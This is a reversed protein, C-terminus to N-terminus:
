SPTPAAPVKAMLLFGLVCQLSSLTLHVAYSIFIVAAGTTRVDSLPFFLALASFGAVQFAGFLGPGAPVVSGLGLIGIMCAAQTPSAPLGSGRMLLWQGAIMCVWYVGTAVLFSILNRRSPLFKLGDAIRILTQAAWNGARPSVLGIVRRTVRSAPERAAYFAAMALFLGAFALTATYVAAPVTALPLPIDGLARPLPSVKSAVSMSVFTFLTLVVGDIVREAFLTGAAQMFTVQRDRALLYPRVVEGMRLPALFIASFGVLGIGLVRLPKLQPAIPRLLYVWRYTRLFISAMQLLVFGAIAWMPVRRLDDQAPLLPLGGRMLLWVFGGAILLSAIIRPGARAVMQERISKGPLESV